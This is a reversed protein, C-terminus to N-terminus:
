ILSVPDIDVRWGGPFPIDALFSSLASGRLVLQWRYRGRLRQIFAPVPGIISLGAIGRSEIESNILRHMREAERRCAAENAHLYVLAALRTFPPNHLQRRYAIERRYFASYDHGAAARIAYHEPNFTQIIVKGPAPGRGARGSVQSLLQFTREGARFDPLNLATDASVAGVLTVSPLDLGKAVLQTGILIDAQHSRFGTLIREHANKERTADSDWRLQRATSFAAATEKELKQTGVGLFKLQPRSCEPCREPVPMKYNCQHCTLVNEVPHFALSTDCRRCRLTFGCNRCQIFTAAGRRNLFLIVQERNELTRKIERSLARSFISRNGAKLEERMDVVEVSPLKSDPVVREPLELMHFRGRRAHYYTSVDPTASGLVVVAGTLEALKLAVSRAHYLPPIDQQKYTWEHEEDIIIIGLDPQPAFVASRAGIVVDCEGKRIRHWEDHQEGLSLGSHQVAVGSPFRAAFREITQPTLAIEPVMTIGKRGLKVAEALAQLYVETKGSGTVGHLLFVAAKRSRLAEKIPALAAEQAPTLKLPTDRDSCSPLSPKRGIEVQAATVLGRAALADIVPRSAGTDSRVESMSVDGSRTLLYELVAAQRFARAHKLEAAATGAEEPSIALFLCTEKKKRIKVPEIAYRRELLNRKILPRVLFPTKKKGFRKETDKLSVSGQSRVFDLFEQQEDPLTSMFDTERATLWTVANREFGPPLMLGISDFLPALYHDSIWRGLTIQHPTLLPLPEITDIIDRTDEVAPYPTIGTVIGQLVKEGFPVWVAHGARVNLRPPICYSFTQRRAIPSNVSVEAFPM